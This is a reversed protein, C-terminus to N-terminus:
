CKSQVTLRGNNKNAQFHFSIIELPRHGQAQSLGKKMLFACIQNFCVDKGDDHVCADVAM